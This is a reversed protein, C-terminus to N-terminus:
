QRDAAINRAPNDPSLWEANEDGDVLCRVGDTEDSDGGYGQARLEGGSTFEDVAM